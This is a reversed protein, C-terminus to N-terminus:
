DSDHYKNQHSNWCQDCILLGCCNDIAQGDSCRMITGVCACSRSNGQCLNAGYTQFLAGDHLNMLISRNDDTRYYLHYDYQVIGNRILSSCGNCKYCIGQGVFYYINKSIQPCVAHLKKWNMVIWWVNQLNEKHTMRLNYKIDAVFSVFADVAMQKKSEDIDKSHLQLCFASVWGNLLQMENEDDVEDPIIATGDDQIYSMIDNLTHSFIELGPFAFEDVSYLKLIHPAIEIMDDITKVRHKIRIM